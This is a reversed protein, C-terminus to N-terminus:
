DICLRYSEKSPPDARRLAAERLVVRVCFLRVNVDTGRTPNSGVIGTNSGAFVTRARSQAAVTIPLFISAGGSSSSRGM